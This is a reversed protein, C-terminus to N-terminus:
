RPSQCALCRDDGLPLIDSRGQSDVNARAAVRARQTTSMGSQSRSSQRPYQRLDYRGVMLRHCIPLGEIVPKTTAPCPPVPIYISPTWGMLVHCCLVALGYVCVCLVANLFCRMMKWYGDEVGWIAVSFVSPMGACPSTGSVSTSRWCGRVSTPHGFSVDAGPSDANLPRPQSSLNSARQIRRAMATPMMSPLKMGFMPGANCLPSNTPTEIGIPLGMRLGHYRLM